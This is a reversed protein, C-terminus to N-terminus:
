SSGKRTRRRVFGGAHHAPSLHSECLWHAALCLSGLVVLTSGSVGQCWHLLGERGWPQSSAAFRWKNKSREHCLPLQALTLCNDKVM